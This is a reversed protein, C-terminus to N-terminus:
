QYIDIHSVLLKGSSNVVFTNAMGDIVERRSTGRILGKATVRVRCKNSQEAWYVDASLDGGKLLDAVDSSVGSHMLMNIAGQTIRGDVERCAEKYESIVMCNATCSGDNYYKYDINQKFKQILNSKSEQFVNVTETSKKENKSNELAVAISASDFQLMKKLQMKENSKLYEGNIKSLSAVEGLVIEGLDQCGSKVTMEDFISESGAPLSSTRFYGSDIIKGSKSKIHYEITLDLDKNTNNKANLNLKMGGSM